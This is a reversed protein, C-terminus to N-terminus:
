NAYGGGVGGLSPLGFRRLRGWGRGLLPSSVQLAEGSGEWPPFLRNAPFYTPMRM